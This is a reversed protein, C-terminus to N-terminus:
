HLNITVLIKTLWGDLRLIIHVTNHVTAINNGPCKRMKYFDLGNGPHIGGGGIFYLAIYCNKKTSIESITFSNNSYKLIAKSFKFFHLNNSKIMFGDM